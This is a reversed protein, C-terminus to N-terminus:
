PERLRKYPTAADAASFYRAIMRKEATLAQSVAAHFAPEALWHWSDTYQPAFGRKLKHEGQAGADFRRLKNHIAYDIGQYYCTEFHLANYDELTGWYRGYITTEDQFFLAGAVAKKGEHAFILFVEQPLINTLSQFFGLNLYPKQGRIHYTNCYFKYFQHWQAESINGGPIYDFSIGAETILQRERKISKRKRATLTALFETFSAYDRNHWHFQVGQRHLLGTQLWAERENTPTFLSHWSSCNLNVAHNQVSQTIYQYLDKQADSDQLRAHGLRPGQSPTFPIATLLKPYYPLGYQAYAEAWQWDFVYEGHSHTKLYLPMVAVAVPESQTQKRQANEYVVLHQPHWGTQGHACHNIELQSLFAHRAFPYQDGMLGDWLEASIESISSVFRCEHTM